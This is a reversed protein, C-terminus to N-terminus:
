LSLAQASAMIGWARRSRSGPDSRWAAYVLGLVALISSWLFLPDSQLAWILLDNKQLVLLIWSFFVVGASLVALIIFSTAVPRVEASAALRGHGKESSAM